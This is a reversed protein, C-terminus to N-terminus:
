IPRYRHPQSKSHLPLDANKNLIITDLRKNIVALRSEEMSFLEQLDSAFGLPLQSSTWSTLWADADVPHGCCSHQEPQAM